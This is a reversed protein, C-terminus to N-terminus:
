HLNWPNPVYGWRRTSAPADADNAVYGTDSVPNLGIAPMSPFHVSIGPLISSHPFLPINVKPTVGGGNQQVLPKGDYSGSSSDHYVEFSPYM